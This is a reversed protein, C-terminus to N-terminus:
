ASEQKSAILYWAKVVRAWKPQSTVTFMATTINYVHKRRKLPM